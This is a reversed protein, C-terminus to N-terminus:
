DEYERSPSGDKYMIRKGIGDTHKYSDIKRIEYGAEQLLRITEAGDLMGNCVSSSGIKELLDIMLKNM